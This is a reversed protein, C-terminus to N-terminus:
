VFTVSNGYIQGHSRQLQPPRQPMRSQVRKKDLYRDIKSEEESDEESEEEEEEEKVPSPPPPPLSVKKKQKKAPPASPAEKSPQPDQMAPTTITTQVNKKRERNLQMRKERGRKLIELQKESMKRKKKPETHVPETIPTTQQPTGRENESDESSPEENHEAVMKEISVDPVNESQGLKPMQSQSNQIRRLFSGM